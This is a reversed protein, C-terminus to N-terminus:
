GARDAPEDAPGGRLGPRGPPLRPVPSGPRGARRGRPHLGHDDAGTPEAHDLPVTHERETLVAGPARFTLMARHRGDGVTVAGDRGRPRRRPAAPREPLRGPTRGRTPHRERFAPRVGRTPVEPDGNRPRERRADVDVGRVDIATGRDLLVPEVGDDLTVAPQMHLIIAIAARDAADAAMGFRELTRRAFEAGEIEFCMTNRPITTLGVDHFLSACWLVQSDVTLGEWAGIAAGWCYSRVSHALLYRPLTRQAWRWSADSVEDQPVPLGAISAPM